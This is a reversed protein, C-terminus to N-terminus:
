SIVDAIESRIDRVRALCTERLDPDLDAIWLLGTRLGMLDQATANPFYSPGGDLVAALQDPTFGPRPVKNAKWDAIRDRENACYADLAKSYNLSM